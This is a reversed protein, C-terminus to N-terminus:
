KGRSMRPDRHQEELQQHKVEVKAQFLFNFEVLSKLSTLDENAFSDSVREGSHESDSPVLYDVDNNDNDHDTNRSSNNDNNNNM